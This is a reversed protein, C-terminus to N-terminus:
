KSKNLAECLVINDNAVRKIPVAGQRNISTIDYFVTASNCNTFVLTITGDSGPPDTRTIETATDFIGGSTMEVDMTAQNGSIPGLATLWRHGPDGLNAIAGPPPLATDYTFWALSVVQTDPFVTIFFGQGSTKRFYWADNLGANISFTNFMSLDFVRAHGANVGNGNINLPAGIALRGADQSLSVSWGSNDGYAEGDMDSGIQTWAADSRQYVRAHGADIGGGDNNHAGIALRDGSSSLSVSWGSNDATAEGDIDAGLQAWATGSWQYVRVHGSDIGNGDNRFAGIALREGDSSLSVSSGSEDGFVEGDIDSGLQVWDTGSRQYVRVHGSNIGNGDNKRAGIALSNGDSSLSVSWGSEDGFAEGDIDNGLQQWDAGSWQYVRVHGSDFGNGDNLNAGVALINGGPSLSVSVGSRDYAAEGDIDAGLQNWVAGSWQYVRVHGSDIGNGDNGPAGIALRSGNLSLSVSGGFGDYAAEGNIAAGLQTWAAGSWEHVRVHGSDFGNVDNGPAGIALRSGDSSLSVSSGSEDYAADGDIDAGLQTQASLMTSWCLLSIALLVAIYSRFRHKSWTSATNSASSDIVPFIVPQKPSVM